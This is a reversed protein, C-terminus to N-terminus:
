EPRDLGRKKDSRWESYVMFGTLVLLGLIIGTVM